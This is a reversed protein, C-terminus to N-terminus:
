LKGCRRQNNRVFQKIVDEITGGPALVAQTDRGTPVSLMNLVNANPCRHGMGHQFRRVAQDLDIWTDM